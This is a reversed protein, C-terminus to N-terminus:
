PLQLHCCHSHACLGARKLIHLTNGLIINNFCTFIEMLKQLYSCVKQLFGINFPLCGCEGLMTDLYQRTTCNNLPEEHQCQRVDQDLGLFDDTVSIEKLANLNYEGQGILKVTEAINKLM